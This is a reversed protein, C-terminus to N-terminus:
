AARKEALRYLSSVRLDLAKAIGRLHKGRFEDPDVTLGRHLTSHPVGSAEALDRLTMKRAKRREDIVTALAYTEPAM